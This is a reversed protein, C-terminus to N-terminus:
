ETSPLAPSSVERGKRKRSEELTAKKEELTSFFDILLFKVTLYMGDQDRMFAQVEDATKFNFMKTIGEGMFSVSLGYTLPGFTDM